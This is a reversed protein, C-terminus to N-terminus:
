IRGEHIVHIKERPIMMSGENGSSDSTHILVWEGQEDIEVSDATLGSKEPIERGTEIERSRGNEDDYIVKAADM